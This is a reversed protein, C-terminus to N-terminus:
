YLDIVHDDHGPLKFRFHRTLTDFYLSTGVPVCLKDKVQKFVSNLLIDLVMEDHPFSLLFPLGDIKFVCKPQGYYKMESSIDHPYEFLNGYIIGHEKFLQQIQIITDKSVVIEVLDTIADKDEKIFKFYTDFILGTELVRKGDNDQLDYGRAGSGIINFIHGKVFVGNGVNLDKKLAVRKPQEKEIFM